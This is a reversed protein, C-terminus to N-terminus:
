ADAAEFHKKLIASVLMSQSVGKRTAERGLADSLNNTVFATLRERPVLEGTILRNFDARSSHHTKTRRLM